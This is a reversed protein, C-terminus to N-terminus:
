PGSTEASFIATLNLVPPLKPSQLTARRGNALYQPSTLHPRYKVYRGNQRNCNKRNLHTEKEVPRQQSRNEFGQTAHLGSFFLLWGFLIWGNKSTKRQELLV